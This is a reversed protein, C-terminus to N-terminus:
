NKITKHPHFRRVLQQLTKLDDDGPARGYRLSLYCDVIETVEKEFAPHDRIVHRAYDFAGQYSPKSLGVRSMKKLFHHYLILARDQATAPQRRHKRRYVFFAIMTLGLPIGSLLLGYRWQWVNDLIQIQDTASFGMFWMDWRFNITEWGLRITEIWRRLLHDRSLASLWSESDLFGDIGEDVRDPAVEVTPDVRVWGAPNLWVECWVHADAQRVTLFGGVPNWRGGLYGGVMRVPVGAARMLVTFASAFHECFGNRSVFLFDDVADRGLRDPRLTYTFREKRFVDLGARVRAAPAEHALALRRGLAFTRPNRDAPLQLCRDDPRDTWGHHGGLVSTVDYTLRQTVPRRTILTHDKMIRGVPTAKVPLDLAFLNRHGHPELVVRYHCRVAGQISNQRTTLSHVPKWTDGDFTQFVIGRWYRQDAKPLPSDFFASFAPTDTVALQSVDGMRIVTSFGSRNQRSWPANLFSGSLRPFAIFFFMMLPVAWLVLRASLKLQPGFSGAPHNVHILVATTVWVSVFLYVTMALNEFVFLSTITLFYALFVTIMSDRHGRVEMPKVGAMVALLTIFDAGDFRLGASVFVLGLGISFFILRITRSPAARRAPDRVLLYGWFAMCWATAWWPLVLCLPAMAVALALLLQRTPLTQM